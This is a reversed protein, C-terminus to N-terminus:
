IARLQADFNKCLYRAIDNAEQGNLLLSPMRGSPDIGHPNQLYRALQPITTRQGQGNITFSRAPGAEKNGEMGHCAACGISNFLREGRKLSNRVESPNTRQNEDKVPGGMGVLYQSIAYAEAAGTDGNGLLRPMIAHPRLQKPDKLWAYIWDPKL